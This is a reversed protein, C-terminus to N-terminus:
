RLAAATKGVLMGLDKYTGREGTAEYGGLDELAKAAPLPFWFRAVATVSTESRTV